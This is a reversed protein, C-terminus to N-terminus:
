LHSWKLSQLRDALTTKRLGVAVKRVMPAIADVDGVTIIFSKARSFATYIWERTVMPLRSLSRHLPLIVVPVESGQMKHCTMAYAM